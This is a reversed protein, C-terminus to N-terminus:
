FCAAQDLAMRPGASGTLLTAVSGLQALREMLIEISLGSHVMQSNLKYLSSLSLGEGPPEEMAENAMCGQWPSPAKQLELLYKYSVHWFKKFILNKLQMFFPKKFWLWQSEYVLASLCCPLLFHNIYSGANCGMADIDSISNLPTLNYWCIFLLVRYGKDNHWGNQWAFHLQVSHHRTCAIPPPPSLVVESYESPTLM